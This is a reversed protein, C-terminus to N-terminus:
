TQVKEAVYIGISSTATNLRADYETLDFLVAAQEQNRRFRLLHRDPDYEGWLKGSADRLELWQAV